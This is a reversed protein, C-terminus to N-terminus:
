LMEALFPDIYDLSLLNVASKFGLKKPLIFM